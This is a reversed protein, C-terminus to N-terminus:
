VERSRLTLVLYVVGAVAFGVFWAYTYLTAFLGPVSAVFGASALFGPLNPVVGCVLAFVARWNVGNRYRYPGDWRYLGELDIQRRRVLYYDVILIGGVPGLLASYGVLWTFIYGSTSEILKWPLIVAGLGAVTLAARRFDFVHPAAHMAANAPSVVNAALNTSLTALAVGLLGLIGAWGGGLRAVLDVPDPVAEGFVVVSASTVAVGIFAFMSMFLPLAVSQGLVQDRQSRAYRTFDPINLSLTAWFGVMATLSPFFLGWFDIDRDVASMALMPEFGGTARYAWVLLALAGLVLLPAAVRELKRLSEMGRWLIFVQVVWFVFFCALELPTIGLFPLDKAGGLFPAVREAVRALAAGGIWTQIGFWGCAVAGRLLAPLNAGRLGFSVRALVPFSIGYRAGPEGILLMPVLVILNGLGVTLVAQRWNMGLEVLGGALMYAPVCVIMGIWLAALDTATWSRESAPTPALEASTLHEDRAPM